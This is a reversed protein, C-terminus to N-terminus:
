QEKSFAPMVAASSPPFARRAIEVDREQEIILRNALLSFEVPIGVM